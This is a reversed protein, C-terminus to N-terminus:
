GGYATEEILQTIDDLDPIVAPKGDLEVECFVGEKRSAGPDADNDQRLAEENIKALKPM